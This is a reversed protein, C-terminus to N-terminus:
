VGFAISNFRTASEEVGMGDVNVAYTVREIRDLRAKLRALTAPVIAPFKSDVPVALLPARLQYTSTYLSAESDNWSLRALLEDLLSRSSPAGASVQRRIDEILSPLSFSGSASSATLQVSVLVLPRKKKPLLQTLSGIVHVRKESRTTKVEVDRQPLTFDHEEAEPGRWAKISASWGLHKALQTLYILEGALGAQQDESLLTKMRVVAAWSKLTESLAEAVPQKDLQVRDAVLCCFGYFERYITPNNTGVEIGSVGHDNALRVEVEALPSVPLATTSSELRLRLRTGAPDVFITAKPSGDIVFLTPPGARIRDSVYEWSAHRSHGPGVDAVSPRTVKRKGM